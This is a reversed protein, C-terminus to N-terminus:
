PKLQLFKLFSLFEAQKEPPLSQYEAYLKLADHFDDGVIEVDGWGMLDGADIGLVNAFELIKSQSLDVKGTEIKAIMSRDYGVRQALQEQTWGNEKRLKRINEYLKLM